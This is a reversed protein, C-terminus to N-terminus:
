QAAEKSRPKTGKGDGGGNPKRLVVLSNAITREYGDCPDNRVQGRFWLTSSGGGDLNLANDCGLKLLFGSLEELTMGDSLDRQRGDVEVLFFWDRSWGVASRPHRELMSSSEYADSVSAVIKQAKGNLVLVPGGGLATLVGRLAPATETAIRVLAGPKVEPLQNVMAPPMSLVMVDPALPSDGAQRVERVRAACSRGARLPLWPGGNARELILERGGSAHTSSGVTPTYLELSNTARDANLGFPSERGDPWLIKFQSGVDALHPERLLDIWLTAGGRPASLLESNVVQLGRPGGAYVKDRLYFDGNIAAVPQGLKPDISAAQDSLTSMGLARAGAHVSHIEYLSNTRSAKVVHISWPVEPIRYNTYVLGPMPSSDLPLSAARIAPLPCGAM